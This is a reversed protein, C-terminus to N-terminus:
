HASMVKRVLTADVGVQVFLVPTVATGFVLPYWFALWVLEPELEEDVFDAGVGDAVL